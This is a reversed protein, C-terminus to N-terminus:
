QPPRRHSCGDVSRARIPAPRPAPRFGDLAYELLLAGAAVLLDRVLSVM